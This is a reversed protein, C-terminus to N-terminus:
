AEPTEESWGPILEDEDCVLREDMEPGDEAMAEAVDDEDDDFRAYNGPDYDDDRKAEVDDYIDGVDRPIEERESRGSLQDMLPVPGVSNPHDYEDGAAISVIEEEDAAPEESEPIITGNQILNARMKAAEEDTDDGQEVVLARENKRARKTLHEVEPDLTEASGSVAQLLTDQSRKTSSRRRNTGRLQSTEPEVVDSREEEDVRSRKDEVTYNLSGDSQGEQASDDSNGDGAPRQRRSLLAAIAASNADTVPETAPDKSFPNEFGDEAADSVYFDTETKTAYQDDRTLTGSM